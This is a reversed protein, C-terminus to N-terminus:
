ACHIGGFHCGRGLFDLHTQLLRKELDLREVRATEDIFGTRLVRGQQGADLLVGEGANRKLVGEVVQRLLQAVLVEAEDHLHRRTLPKM